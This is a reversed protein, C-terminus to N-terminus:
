RKNRTPKSKLYAVRELRDNKRRRISGSCASVHNVQLRRTMRAKATMQSDSLLCRISDKQYDGSAMRLLLQAM